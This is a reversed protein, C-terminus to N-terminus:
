EQQHYIRRCDASASGDPGYLILDPEYRLGPRGGLRSELLVLSVASQARHRVIYAGARKLHRWQFPSELKEDVDFRNRAM